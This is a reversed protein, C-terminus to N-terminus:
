GVYIWLRRVTKFLLCFGAIWISCISKMYIRLAVIHLQTHLGLDFIFPKKKPDINLLAPKQGGRKLQRDARAGHSGGSPTERESHWSGTLRPRSTTSRRACRCGPCQRPWAARLGHRPVHRLDRPRARPRPTPRPAGPPPRPRTAGVATVPGPFCFM